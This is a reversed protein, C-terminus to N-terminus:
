QPAGANVWKQLKYLTCPDLSTPGTSYSAPMSKEVLVRTNFTGNDVKAKIGAYSTYDNTSGANHCGSFTCNNALVGSVFSTYTVSSLTDCNALADVPVVGKDKVCSSFNIVSTIFVFAFAVKILKNM